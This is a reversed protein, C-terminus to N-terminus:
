SLAPASRSMTGLWMMCSMLRVAISGGIEKRRRRPGRRAPWSEARWGAWSNAFFHQAARTRPWYPSPMPPRCARAQRDCRALRGAPNWSRFRRRWSAASRCSASPRRERKGACRCVGARRAVGADHDLKAASRKDQEAVGRDLVQHGVLQHQVDLRFFANRQVEGGLHGPGAMRSPATSMFKSYRRSNRCALGAGAVLAQQVIAHDAVGRQELAGVHDFGSPAHDARHQVDPLCQRWAIEGVVGGAGPARFLGVVAPVRRGGSSSNRSIIRAPSM